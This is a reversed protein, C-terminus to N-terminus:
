RTAGHERPPHWHVALGADDSPASHSSWADCPQGHIHLASPVPLNDLLAARAIQERLWAMSTAADRTVLTRVAALRPTRARAVLGLTLTGDAFTALWADAGLHRRSRNWAAIFNPTASALCGRRATVALQL